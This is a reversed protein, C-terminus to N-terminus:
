FDCIQIWRWRQQKGEIFIEIILFKSEEFNLLWKQEDEVNWFSNITEKVAAVSTNTEEVWSLIRIIGKFLSLGLSRIRTKENKEIRKKRKWNADDEQIPAEMKM